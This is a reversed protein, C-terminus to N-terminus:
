REDPPIDFMFAETENPRFLLVLFCGPPPPQLFFPCKDSWDSKAESYPSVRVLLAMEGPGEPGQDSALRYDIALDGFRVQGEQEGTCRDCEFIQVVPRQIGKAIADRYCSVIIEPYARPLPKDPLPIFADDPSGESLQQGNASDDVEELWTSVPCRACITKLQADSIENPLHLAVRGQVSAGTRIGNVYFYLQLDRYRHAAAEGTGAPSDNVDVDYNAHRIRGVRELVALVRQNQDIRVLDGLSFADTGLPIAAVRATHPSVREAPVWGVKVDGQGSVAFFVAVRNRDPYLDPIAQALADSNQQAAGIAETAEAYKEKAGGGFFDADPDDFRALARRALDAWISGLGGHEECTTLRFITAAAKILEREVARWDGHPDAQSARIGEIQALSATADRVVREAHQRAEEEAATLQRYHAEATAASGAVARAIALVTQIRQTLMEKRAARKARARRQVEVAKQKRKKRQSM